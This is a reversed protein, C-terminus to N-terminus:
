EIKEGPIDRGNQHLILHTTTGSEDTVFTIQADVIKLFFDSETEPYIEVKPQGTAQTILQGNELTVALIFNPALRYAGVYKELVAPDVQIAIREKPLEYPNGFVIGTHKRVACSGVQIFGGGNFITEEPNSPNMMTELYDPFGTFNPIGATHSLLHHITIKDGNPYDPIYKTLLDTVDLEGAEQLQMIALATFQKTVSGLRFKTASTNRIEMERNAMGYGSSVLVTDNRAVLVSGSFKDLDQYAQLYEDIKDAVSQGVSVQHIV